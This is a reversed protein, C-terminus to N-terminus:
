VQRYQVWGMRMAMAPLDHLVIEKKSTEIADVVVGAVLAVAGDVGNTVTAPILHCCLESSLVVPLCSLIWMPCAWILCTKLWIGGDDWRTGFVVIELYSKWETASLDINSYYYLTKFPQDHCAYFFSM